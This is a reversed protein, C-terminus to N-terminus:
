NAEARPTPYRNAVRGREADLRELRLCAIVLERHAEAQRRNLGNLIQGHIYITGRLGALEGAIRRSQLWHALAAVILMGGAIAHIWGIADLPTGGNTTERRSDEGRGRNRRPLGM